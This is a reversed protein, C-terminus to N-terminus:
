KGQGSFQKINGYKRLMQPVHFVMCHMYPTVRIRQYGQIEDGLEVFDRVWQKAQMTLVVNVSLHLKVNM